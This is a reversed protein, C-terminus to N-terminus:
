ANMRPRLSETQTPEKVNQNQIPATKMSLFVTGTRSQEASDDLLFHISTRAPPGM